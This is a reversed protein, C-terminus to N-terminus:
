FHTAQKPRHRRRLGVAPLELSNKREHIVIVIGVIRDHSRDFVTEIAEPHVPYVDQQHVVDVLPGVAVAPGLDEVLEHCRAIASQAFQTVFAGYRRHASSHVEDLGTLRHRKTPIEVAKKQGAAVGQELLVREVLEQWKALSAM